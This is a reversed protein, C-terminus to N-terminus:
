FWGHRKASDLCKKALEDARKQQAPTPQKANPYRSLESMEQSGTITSPDIEHEPEWSRRPPEAPPPMDHDCGVKSFYWGTPSGTSPERGPSVEASMLLLFVALLKYVRECVMRGAFM